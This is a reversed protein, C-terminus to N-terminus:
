KGAKKKTSKKEKKIVNTPNSCEKTVQIMEIIKRNNEITDYRERFVRKKM